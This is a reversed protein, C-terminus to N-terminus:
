IHTQKWMRTDGIDLRWPQMGPESADHHIRLTIASHLPVLTPDAATHRQVGVSLQATHRSMDISMEVALAVFFM